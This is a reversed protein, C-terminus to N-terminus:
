GHTGARLQTSSVLERAARGIDGAGLTLVIDQDRLLPRLADRLLDLRPVFVPDSGGRARVSRCLARGSGWPVMVLRWNRGM